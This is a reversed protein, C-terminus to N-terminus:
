PLGNKGPISLVVGHLPLCPLDEMSTLSERPLRAPCSERIDSEKVREPDLALIKEEMSPDLTYQRLVTGKEVPQTYSLERFQSKRVACGSLLALAALTLLIVYTNKKM